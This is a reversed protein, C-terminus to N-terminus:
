RHLNEIYRIAENKKIHHRLNPINFLEFMTYRSILFEYTWYPYVNIQYSEGIFFHPELFKYHISMPKENIFALYRLEKKDIFIEITAKNFINEITNSKYFIGINESQNKYMFGDSILKRKIRKWNTM